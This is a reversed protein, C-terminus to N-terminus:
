RDLSTSDRIRLTATAEASALEYSGAPVVREGSGTMGGSTVALADLSLPVAATTTEGADVGVREFGVVQRAPPIAPSDSGDAEHDYDALVVVVEDTARDGENTIEVTATVGDTAAASEVTSASLTMGDHSTPVYSGGHGFPFQPASGDGGGAGVGDGVAGGDHPPTRHTIVDPIQGVDRPWTFPLRGAPPKAGFLADGVARGGESGPYYAMLAADLDDFLDPSGRSRGAVIVGVSPADADGLASVLERQGPPLSLDDVDGEGEAYPEEGIAAITVDAEAAAHEVEDRNSLTQAGTEVVTVDVGTPAAADVGQAVTVTEPAAEPQEVGQWGTTWGGLQRRASDATPGAVLVSDVDDGFPLTGGENSLLTLSEAAARRALTRDRETAAETHREVPVTPDDFLGLRDKVRLIRRVADDLRSESVRGSEVHERLASQYPRIQRPHPAMYMDVGANVAMAVAEPFDSAYGHATVLNHLDTWDSVVLGDFGWRERLVTTQLWESAHAPVGNVSGSNAMVTEAGADVGARYPPLVTDELTRRSVDAPERDNGTEPLSYGAFHKVSAAVRKDGDDVREYGRVMAATFAGTVLPDESFSEYYRGWRPDFAVDAVPSFTWNVGVASLSRGTTAALSRALGTNWTAGVGIQHPFVAAEAVTANGHVADLGILLPVGVSDMAASQMEDFFEAAEEATAGPANAGGFLISGVGFSDVEDRARDIDYVQGREKPELQTTQGIKEALSLDDLVSEIREADASATEAPTGGADLDGITSEPTPSSGDSPGPDTASESGFLGSCGSVSLGAM